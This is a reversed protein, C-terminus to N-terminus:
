FEETYFLPPDKKIAVLGELGGFLTLDESHFEEM